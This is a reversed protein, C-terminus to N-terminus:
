LVAAKPLHCSVAAQSALTEPGKSRQGVKLSEVLKVAEQTAFRVMPRRKDVVTSVLNLQGVVRIM